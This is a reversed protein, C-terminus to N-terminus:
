RSIRFLAGQGESLFWLSGDPAQKLDRIRLIDRNSLREWEKLNKGSLRSIMDFKLSGVFIDRQWEPFMRGSYVLLNSPAISPDWYWEPQEMGPKSTGEGIKAGSYHRGYSIVPWGYNRGRRILNIEDGGQAGHEASWLRGASDLTLGQPNRHGYSWIEPQVGPIGVFPNDAPVTGDRNLRLISGNHLSRDQASPRDGRDGLSLFLHGDPAEVVRSGFHRGGSPGPATRFIIRFATLNQGKADLQGVGLAVGVGSRQRISFTLFVERSQNFDSPIMVDLLGGQGRAAVRPLGDIRQRSGHDVLFLEGDRETVLVAGSPLFAFSWPTDFGQAIKEITLTGVSETDITAQALSASAFSLNFVVLFARLISVNKKGKQM